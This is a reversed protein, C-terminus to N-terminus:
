KKGNIRWINEFYVGTERVMAPNMTKLRLLHASVGMAILLLLIQLWLASAVMLASWGITLWLLSIALIKSCLSMARHHHYNYLYPGFIRHHTLWTHFRESSRLFSAAALLLFPTTPLLPLVIGLFALGTFCFGAILLFIKVPKSVSPVSKL